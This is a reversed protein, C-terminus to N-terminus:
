LVFANDQEPFLTSATGWVKTTPPAMLSPGLRLCLCLHNGMALSMVSWLLRVPQSLAAISATARSRCLAPQASQSSLLVAPM